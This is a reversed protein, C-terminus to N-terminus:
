SPGTGEGTVLSYIISGVFVVLIIGFWVAKVTNSRKLKATSERAPRTLTATFDFVAVYASAAFHLRSQAAWRGARRGIREAMSPGAATLPKPTRARSPALSLARRKLTREQGFPNPDMPSM